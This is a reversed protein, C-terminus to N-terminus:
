KYFYSCIFIVFLVSTLVVVKHITRLFIDDRMCYLGAFMVPVSVTLSILMHNNILLLTSYAVDYFAVMPLSKPFFQQMWLLSTLWISVVYLFKILFFYAPVRIRETGTQVHQRYLEYAM